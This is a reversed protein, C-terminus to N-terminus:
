SFIFSDLSLMSATLVSIRESLNVMGGPTYIKYPLEVQFVLFILVLVLLFKYNEKFFNKIRETVKKTLRKRGKGM